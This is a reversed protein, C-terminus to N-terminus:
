ALQRAFCRCIPSDRYHGFAPIPTYGASEYLAIAEPQRLGTELIMAEIGSARATEELHALIRRAHGRGRASPAVYM